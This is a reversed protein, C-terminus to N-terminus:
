DSERIVELYHFSKPYKDALNSLDARTEFQLKLKIGNNVSQFKFINLLQTEDNRKREEAYATELTMGDFFSLPFDMQYASEPSNKTTIKLEAQKWIKQEDVREFVLNIFKMNFNENRFAKLIVPGADKPAHYVGKDFLVSEAQELSTKKQIVNITMEAISIVYARQEDTMPIVKPMDKIDTRDYPGIIKLKNMANDEVKQSTLVSTFFTYKVMWTSLGLAVVFLGIRIVKHIKM